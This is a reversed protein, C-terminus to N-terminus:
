SLSRVGAQAPSAPLARLQRYALYMRLRWHSIMGFALVFFVSGTQLPNVYRGVYSRAAFRIAVLALLIWLFARSRQLMIVDGSWVLRSSRVLPYSLFLAGVIFASAAWLIPIRAPPYVFMTFGTSMALPPLIIKRATVPRTTERVRWAIIVAAGLLSTM